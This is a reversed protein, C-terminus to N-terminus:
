KEGFKVDQPYDKIGKPSNRVSFWNGIETVKEWATDSLDRLEETDKVEMGEILARLIDVRFM